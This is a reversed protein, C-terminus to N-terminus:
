RSYGANASGIQSAMSDYMDQRFLDMSSIAYKLSNESTEPLEAHSIHLTSLYFAMRFATGLECDQCFQDFDIKPDVGGAKLLATLTDWYGTVLNGVEEEDREALQIILAGVDMAPNAVTAGEFDVLRWRSEKKEFMTGDGTKDVFVLNGKHANGHCLTTAHSNLHALIKDFGLEDRAKRFWVPDKWCFRDLAEDVKDNGLSEGTFINSWKAASHLGEVPPMGWFAAHLHAYSDLILRMDKAPIDERTFVRNVVPRGLNEAILSWPGISLMRGISSRGLPRVLNRALSSVVMEPVFVEPEQGATRIKVSLQKPLGLSPHTLSGAYSVTCTFYKAGSSPTPGDIEVAECSTVPVWLKSSLWKATPKFGESGPGSEGDDKDFADWM